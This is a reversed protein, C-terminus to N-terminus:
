EFKSHSVFHFFFQTLIVPLISKLSMQNKNRFLEETSHIIAVCLFCRCVFRKWISSFEFDTWKMWSKWKEKEKMQLVCVSLSIDTLHEQVFHRVFRFCLPSCNMFLQLCLLYHFRTYIMLIFQFMIILWLTAGCKEIPQGSIKEFYRRNKQDTKRKKKFIKKEQYTFKEKTHVNKKHRLQSIRDRSIM